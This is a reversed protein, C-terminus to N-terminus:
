LPGEIGTVPIAKCKKHDYKHSLLYIDDAYELDKLSNMWKSVIGRMKANVVRELIRDLVQLFLINVFTKELIKRDSIQVKV